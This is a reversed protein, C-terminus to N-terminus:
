IAVFIGVSELGSPISRALLNSITNTVDIELENRGSVLKGSIDFRYHGWACVGLDAGNLRAKVVGRYAAVVLFARRNMLRAELRSDLNVTRRYTVSGSYRPFGQSVWSGTEIEAPLGAIAKDKVAFAGSLFVPPLVPNADGSIGREGADCELVFEVSNEGPTVLGTISAARFSDDLMGAAAEKGDVARGNIKMQSVFAKEFVISIDAPVVDAKFAARVPLGLTSDFDSVLRDGEADLWDSDRLVAWDRPYLVNAGALSYNWKGRLDLVEELEDALNVCGEEATKRDPGTLLLSGPLFAVPVRIGGSFATCTAQRWDGSSDDFFCASRAGPLIVEGRCEKDGYFYISFVDGQDSVRRQVLVTSSEQGDTEVIVRRPCGKLATAMSNAGPGCVRGGARVYEEIRARAESRIQTAPLVLTGYERSGALVSRGRIVSAALDDEHLVDFDLQREMLVGAAAIIERAREDWAGAGLWDAAPFVLACSASRRSEGIGEACINQIHRSLRGAHESLPLVGMHAAVATKRRGGALSYLLGDVAVSGAGVALLLNARDVIDALKNEFVAAQKKETIAGVLAKDGRSAECIREALVATAIDERKRGSMPRAALETPLFASAKVPDAFRGIWTQPEVGCVMGAAFQLNRERCWDAFRQLYAERYLRGVEDRYARRIEAADRFGDRSVLATLSNVLSFGHKNRFLEPLKHTWPLEIVSDWGNASRIDSSLSAADAMVGTVVKGFLRELKEPIRGASSELWADVANPNLLDLDKAKSETLVCILIESNGAPLPVPGRLLTRGSGDGVPEKKWRSVVNIINWCETGATLAAILIDGDDLSLDVSALEDDEAVRKTYCRVARRRFEPQRGHIDEVLRKDSFLFDDLWLRIGSKAAVGAVHVVGDAIQDWSQGQHLEPKIVLGGFGLVSMQDLQTAIRKRDLTGNWHWLMLPRGVENKKETM